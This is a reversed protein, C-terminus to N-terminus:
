AYFISWVHLSMAVAALQNVTQIKKQAALGGPCPSCAMPFYLDPIRGTDEIAQWANVVDRLVPDRLKCGQSKSPWRPFSTLLCKSLGHRAVAPTRFYLSNVLFCSIFHYAKKRGACGLWYTRLQFTLACSKTLSWKQNPQTGMFRPCGSSPRAPLREVASPRLASRDLRDSWDQGINLMNSQIRKQRNECVMGVSWRHECAEMSGWFIWIPHGIIETVKDKGKNLLKFCFLRM